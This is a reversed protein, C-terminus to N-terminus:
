RRKQKEKDEKLTKDALEAAKSAESQCISTFDNLEGATTEIQKLHAETLEVASFKGSLLGERMQAASLKTLSEM